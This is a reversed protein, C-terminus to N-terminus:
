GVGNPVPALADRLQDRARQLRKRAAAPSIDLVQAAEASALGEWYVLTVLERDATTLTELAAGVRGTADPDAPPTVMAPLEAAIREALAQRRRVGRRLNALSHRATRLMWALAAREEAPVTPLRRWTTTLTDAYADAADAREDTRRVLYGLVIPGHTRALHEMRSADRNV